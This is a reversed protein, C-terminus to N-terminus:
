RIPFDERLASPLFFPAVSKSIVTFSMLGITLQLTIQSIDRELTTERVVTDDFLVEQHDAAAANSGLFAWQGEALTEVGGGFTGSGFLNSEFPDIGRGFVSMTAELGTGFLLSEHALELLVEDGLSLNREIKNNKNNLYFLQYFITSKNSPKM